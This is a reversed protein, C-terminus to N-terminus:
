KSRRDENRQEEGKRRDTSVPEQRDRRDKKSRRDMGTRRRELGQDKSM